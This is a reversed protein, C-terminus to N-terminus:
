QPADLRSAVEASFLVLQEYPRYYVEIENIRGDGKMGLITVGSMSRGNYVGNWELYTKGQMSVRSKFAISQFMTKTANFYSRIAAPGKLVDRTVATELTVDRTFAGAFDEFEKRTLIELWGSGTEPNPPKANITM